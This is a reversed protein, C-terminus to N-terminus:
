SCFSRFYFTRRRKPRRGEGSKARTPPSPLPSSVLSFAIPLLTSFLFDLFYDTKVKVICEIPVFKFLEFNLPSLAGM